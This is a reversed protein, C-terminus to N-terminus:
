LEIKKSQVARFGSALMIEDSINGAVGANSDLLDQLVEGEPYLIGLQMIKEQRLFVRLDANQVSSLDEDSMLNVYDRRRLKHWIYTQGNLDTRYIEGFQRKWDELQEKSVLETVPVQIGFKERMTNMVRDVSTQITESESSINVAPVSVEEETYKVNIPEATAKEVKKAVLCSYRRCNVLLNM